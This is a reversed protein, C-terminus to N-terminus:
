YSLSMAISTTLSTDRLELDVKGVVRPSTPAPVRCVVIEGKGVLEWQTRVTASHVLPLVLSLLPWFSKNSKGLAASELKQIGEVNGAGAEDCERLFVLVM